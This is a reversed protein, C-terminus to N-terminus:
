LLNFSKIDFYRDSHRLTTNLIEVVSPFAILTEVVINLIRELYTM